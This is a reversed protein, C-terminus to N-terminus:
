LISSVRDFPTMRHQSGREWELVGESRPLMNGEGCYRPTVQSAVDASVLDSPAAM